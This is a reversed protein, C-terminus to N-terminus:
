DFESEQRSSSARVLFRVNREIVFTSAGMVAIGVLGLWLSVTFYAVLVITGVLFGTVGWLTRRKWRSMSDGASMVEVLRPDREFLSHELEALVNLEHESLPMGAQQERNVGEGRGTGM